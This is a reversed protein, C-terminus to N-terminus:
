KINFRKRLIHLIEPQIKEKKDVMKQIETLTLFTIKEVDEKELSFPGEHIIKFSGVFRCIKRSDDYINKGVFLLEKKEIDIGIEEKAERIAADRYTEGSQVRGGVAATWYRPCYEKNKSRLQLAMRGKKDFVFILSVRHTHKKTYVEDLSCKGIVKDNRDVIDVYEM